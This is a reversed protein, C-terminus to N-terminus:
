EVVKLIEALLEKAAPKLVASTESCNSRSIIAAYPHGTETRFSFVLSVLNTKDPMEATGTKGYVTVGDAELGYKKASASFAERLKEQITERGAFMRPLAVKKEPYWIASEDDDPLEPDRIYELASPCYIAEDPEAALAAYWLMVNLPCVQLTGQGIAVQRAAAADDEKPLGLSAALERGNMEPICAPEPSGDVFGFMGAAKRLGKGGILDAAHSFYTNASHVVADTLTLKGYAYGGYNHIGKYVGSDDYFTEDVGESLLTYSTILKFGSGPASFATSPSTFFDPLNKYVDYNESYHNVDLEVAENRSVAYALLQGNSVDMVMATGRTGKLLEYCKQQLSLDISLHLSSGKGGGVRSSYLLQEQYMERLGSLGGSATRYGVLDGIAPDLVEAATGPSDAHTLATGNRDYIVGETTAQKRAEKEFIQRAEEISASDKSPLLGSRVGLKGVSLALAAAASTALFVRRSMTQKM